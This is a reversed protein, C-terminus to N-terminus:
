LITQWTPTAGSTTTAKVASADVFSTGNWVKVATRRAFASGNWVKLTTYSTITFTTSNSSPTYGGPANTASVTVNASGPATVTGTFAGTSSNFSIGMASLSGSNVTLSYTSTIPSATASGSYATGVIGNPNSVTFSPSPATPPPPPSSTTASSSASSSLAEGFATYFGTATISASYTTGSSLGSVTMSGSAASSSGGPYSVSVSKATPSGNWDVSWSLSLSNTTGNNSLSISVIPGAM